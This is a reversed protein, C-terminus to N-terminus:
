RRKWAGTQLLMAYPFGPALRSSIRRTASSALASSNMRLSGSPYSVIIPSRAISPRGIESYMQDFLPSMEGLARDVMVRIARLPHERGVRSEPSLYSFMASQSQDAGRM